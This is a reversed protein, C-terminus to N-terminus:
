HDLSDNILKAANAFSDIVISLFDKKALQNIWEEPIGKDGGIGYMMGALGGAVAALTDADGGMNVAMLVCEKYSHTHTLCYFTCALTDVVFGTSTLNEYATDDDLLATFHEYHGDYPSFVKYLSEWLRDNPNLMILRAMALYVRCCEHSVEHNHTLGCIAKFNEAGWDGLFALPLCRMLAGNGNSYEDSLGCHYVDKGGKRYNWIADYCTIGSDFVVGHPTYRGLGIWESFSRMILELSTRQDCGSVILDRFQQITDMTAITMSTDDSWTGVPQNYTGYGTMGVCPSSVMEERSKHEFPVGLADGVIFGFMAARIYDRLEM